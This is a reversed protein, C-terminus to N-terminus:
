SMYWVNTGVQLFMLRMSDSYWTKGHRRKDIRFKSNNEQSDLEIQARVLNVMNQQFTMHPEGLSGGERQVTQM